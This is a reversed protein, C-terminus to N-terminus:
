TSKQKTQLRFGQDVVGSVLAVDQVQLLLNLLQQLVLDHLPATAEDSAPVPVACLDHAFQQGPTYM